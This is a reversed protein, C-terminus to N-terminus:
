KHLAYSLHTTNYCNLHKYYIDIVYIGNKINGPTNNRKDAIIDLQEIKYLDAEQLFLMEIIGAIDDIDQLIGVLSSMDHIYDDVKKFLAKSHVNKTTVTIKM